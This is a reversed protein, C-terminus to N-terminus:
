VAADIIAAKRAEELEVTKRQNDAELLRQQIEVEHKEQEQRIITKNIDAVNRALNLSVTIGLALVGYLYVSRNEGIPEILGLNDLIQLIVSLGLIVMGIGIIFNRERIPRLGQRFLEIAILALMIYFASQLLKGPSIFFWMVLACSFLLFFYFQRPTSKYRESYITLLGFLVAVFVAIFSVQGLREAEAMSGTFGFGYDTYAILAFGAMSLSYYLNAREQPNFIFIMLHFFALTLPIITFIFQYISFIRVDYLRGSILDDLNHFIVIRFGLFGAEGFLPNRQMNSYRVALVSSEQGPFALYLPNRNFAAVEDTSDTGIIGTRYLLRGNLYIESAGAQRLSMGLTKQWLSTDVRVRLRFWCTVPWGLNEAMEAPLLSSVESWDRDDFGPDAWAADDGAHYKWNEFLEIQNAKNAFREASLITPVRSHDRWGPVTILVTTDNRVKFIFNPFELGDHDVAETEWSGRTIKFELITGGTISIDGRWTGNTGFKLPFGDPSWEGLEPVNGSVYIRETGPLNCDTVVFAVRFDAGEGSRLLLILFPLALNVM